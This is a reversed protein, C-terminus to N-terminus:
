VSIIAHLRKRLDDLRGKLEGYLVVILSMIGLLRLNNKNM